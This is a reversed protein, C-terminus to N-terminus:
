FTMTSRMRAIRIRWGRAHVVGSAAHAADLSRAGGALPERRQRIRAHSLAASM